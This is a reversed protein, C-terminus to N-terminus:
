GQRACFGENAWMGKVHFRGELEAKKKGLTEYGGKGPVFTPQHPQLGPIAARASGPTM